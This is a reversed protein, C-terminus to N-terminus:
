GSAVALSPSAPTKELWSGLGTYPKESTSSTHVSPARRTRQADAQPM